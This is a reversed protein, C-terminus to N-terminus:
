RAAKRPRLARATADVLQRRLEEFSITASVPRCQVVYWDSRENPLLAQLIAKCRRRVRNRVVAKGVKKTVVIGVKPLKAVSSRPSFAHVTIASTSAANGRRMALTFERRGRLSLFARM